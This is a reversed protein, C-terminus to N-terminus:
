RNREGNQWHHLAELKITNMRVSVGYGKPRCMGVHIIHHLIGEEKCPLLLKLQSYCRGIWTQNHEYSPILRIREGSDSRKSCGNFRTARKQTLHIIDTNESSGKFTLKLGDPFQQLKIVSRTFSSKLLVYTGFSPVRWGRTTKMDSPNTKPETRESLAIFIIWFRALSSFRSRSFSSLRAWAAKLSLWAVETAMTVDPLTEVRSPKLTSDIMLAAIAVSVLSTTRRTGSSFHGSHNFATLRKNSKPKSFFGTGM